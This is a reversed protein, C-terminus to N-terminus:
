CLDAFAALVDLEATLLTQRDAPDGAVRAYLRQYEAVLRRGQEPPLDFGLLLHRLDTLASLAQTAPTPPEVPLPLEVPPPREARSGDGQTAEEALPELTLLAQGASVQDGEAVTLERVRGTFPAPLVTEMKMSELVAVPAGATVLDGAAVPLSVVLAPAPSCIAGGSDKTVRHVAADVEVLHAAAHTAMVVRHSTGEVELRGSYAGLRELTAQVPVGEVSVRYTNLGVQAVALSHTSGRLGLQFERGGEHRAQPSGGYASALFRHREDREAEDYADIAAAVLAIGAHRRGALGGGARERDIWGTDAWVPRGTTVEPRRLLDLLFSKNTTGGEIVVKTDELARQLRALAQERTGGYAIVKAIM